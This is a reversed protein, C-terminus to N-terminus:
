KNEFLNTCWRSELMTWKDKIHVYMTHVHALLYHGM